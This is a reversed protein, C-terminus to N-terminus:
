IPRPGPELAIAWGTGVPRRMSAVQVGQDNFAEVRVWLPHALVSSPVDFSALFPPSADLRIEGDPNSVGLLEWRATRGDGTELSVAVLEAHVQLTGAVDVHQGATTVALTFPILVQDPLVALATQEPRATAVAIAPAAAPARPASRGAIAFAALGIVAVIWFAAILPPRRGPAVPGPEFTAREGRESGLDSM